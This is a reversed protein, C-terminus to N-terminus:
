CAKGFILTISSRPVGPQQAANLLKWGKALMAAIHTEMRMSTVWGHLRYAGLANVYTYSQVQVRVTADAVPANM